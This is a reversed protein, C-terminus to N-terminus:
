LTPTVAPAVLPQVALVLAHGNPIQTPDVVIGPEPGNRPVIKPYVDARQMAPRMSETSSRACANLPLRLDPGRDAALNLPWLVAILHGRCPWAQM